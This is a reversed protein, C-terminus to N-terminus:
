SRAEVRVQVEAPFEDEGKGYLYRTSFSDKNSFQHDVKIVFSDPTQRGRNDAVFPGALNLSSYIGVINLGLQNM